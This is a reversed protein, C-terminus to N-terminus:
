RIDCYLPQVTAYRMSSPMCMYTAFLQWFNLQKINPRAWKIHHNCTAILCPIPHMPWAFATWREKEDHATEITTALELSEFPEGLNLNLDVMITM